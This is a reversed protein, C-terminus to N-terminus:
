LFLEKMVLEVSQLRDQHTLEIAAILIQRQDVTLIPEGLTSLPGSTQELWFETEILMAFGNSTDHRGVDIRGLQETNIPRWCFCPILSQADDLLERDTLEM